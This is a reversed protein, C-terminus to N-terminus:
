PRRETLRRETLHNRRLGEPNFTLFTLILASALLIGDRTLTIVSVAEGVGFCGCDIGGGGHYARLMLAYFAILLVTLAPATYRMLRGTVLLLGLVLELWPLTRAVTLVAWSPLLQYADISMAFILWSERLKTYAAYLFVVGLLVRLVIALKRAM